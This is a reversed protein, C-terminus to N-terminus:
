DYRMVTYEAYVPAALEYERDGLVYTAEVTAPTAAVLEEFEVDSERVVNGGRDLVTEVSVFAARDEGEVTATIGGGVEDTGLEDNVHEAAATGAASLCQTEGWREFPTTEFVPEREPPGDERTENQEDAGDTEEEERDVYRWGAVYRVADNSEVYEVDEDDEVERVEIEADSEGRVPGRAEPMTSSEDGQDDGDSEGDEEREDESPGARISETSGDALCGGILPLLLAAGSRSLFTRRDM